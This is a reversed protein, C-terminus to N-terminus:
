ALSLSLSSPLQVSALSDSYPEIGEGKSISSQINYNFSQVYESSAYKQMDALSFLFRGVFYQKASKKIIKIINFCHILVMLIRKKM